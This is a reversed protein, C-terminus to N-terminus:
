ERPYLVFYDDEEYNLWMMREDSWNLVRFRKRADGGTFYLERGELRWNFRGSKQTGGAFPVNKAIKMSMLVTEDNKFEWQIRSTREELNRMNPSPTVAEVVWTNGILTRRLDAQEEASLSDDTELVPAQGGGGCGILGLLGLALAFTIMGKKM